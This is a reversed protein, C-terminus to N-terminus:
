QITVRRGADGGTAGEMERLREVRADIPPHTSLYERLRRESESEVEGHTWVPSISGFAPTSARDLTRLARALALPRGTVAAAREDAAFERRRAHARLLLTVAVGVLAVGLEIRNRLRGPITETWTGPAGRAWAVTLATGTALFVLPSFLIELVVVVFQSLGLAATRVLTDRRELHALEHALLAEFESADLLRFLSADIVVANRGGTALAFANPADLRAVLLRPRAVAMSACLDDLLDYVAPARAESLERADLQELVRRAGLRLGLYAALLAGALAGLLAALPDLRLRWVALLVYASAVTLLGYFAFVALAVAATRLRRPRATM